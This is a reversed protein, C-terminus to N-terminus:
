FLSTQLPALGQISTLRRIGVAGREMLAQCGQSGDEFVFLSSWNHRLNDLCGEWTGGKGYTCQIAITKDPQMHILANRHLARAPSFPLDFGDESIYLIGPYLPHDTLRDALFVICSGGHNLCATQATQDAGMANGSVLVLQEQAAAHGVCRAFVENEPMLQRSGVAAVCPRELLSLDGRAFLVPPCSLQKKLRVQRPYAPSLRTLPVIGLREAQALYRRLLPERDLLHIIRQAQEASYGLVTLDKQRLQALPDELQGCARVRLGLERFQAMTLPRADPDGLRCCLLLVGEEAATM